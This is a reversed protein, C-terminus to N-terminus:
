RRGLQRRADAEAAERTEGRGIVHPIRRVGVVALDHALFPTDEPAAILTAGDDIAM